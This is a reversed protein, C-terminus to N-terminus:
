LATVIFAHWYSWSLPSRPMFRRSRPKVFSAKFVNLLGRKAGTSETREYFLRIASIGYAELNALSYIYFFPTHKQVSFRYFSTLANRGGEEGEGSEYACWATSYTLQWFNSLISQSHLSATETSASLLSEPKGPPRSKRVAQHHIETHFPSIQVSMATSTGQLWLHNTEKHFQLFEM